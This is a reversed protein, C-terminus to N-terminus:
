VLHTGQAEPQGVAEVRWQPPTRGLLILAGAASAVVRAGKGQVPLPANSRPRVQM